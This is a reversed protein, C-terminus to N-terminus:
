LIDEFEQVYSNEGVFTDQDWDKLYELEIHNRKM